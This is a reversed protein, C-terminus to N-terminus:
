SQGGSPIAEHVVPSAPEAFIVSPIKRLQKLAQRPDAKDGIRIVYTSHGLIFDDSAIINYDDGLPQLLEQLQLQNVPKTFIIRIDNPEFRSPQPSSLTQYDQNLLKGLWFQPLIMLSVATLIIFATLALTLPTAFFSRSLPMWWWQLKGVPPYIRQTGATHPRQWFQQFAVESSTGLDPSQEIITALQYLQGLTKRCVCCRQLHHKVTQHETKSLTGNAYWPLLLNIQRHDLKNPLRLIKM